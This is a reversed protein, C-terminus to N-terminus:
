QAEVEIIVNIKGQNDTSPSISQSKIHPTNPLMNSKFPNAGGFIGPDTGGVGYAKAPSDNLLNFDYSYKFSVVGDYNVFLTNYAQKQLNSFTGQSNTSGFEVEQIFVNQHFTSNRIGGTEMMTYVLGGIINNRFICGDLAGANWWAARTIINQQFLNNDNFWDLNMIINNSILCNRIGGGRLHHFINETLTFNSGIQAPNGDFSLQTVNNIHCRHILVNQVNQNTANSGVLLSGNIFLGQLESYDAGSLLRITGNIQTIGTAVNSEPAHGTGYIVLKKEIVLNSVPFIGGSLYISDGPSAATVAETFGASSYFYSITGNSHLAASQQAQVGTIFLCFALTLTFPITLRM